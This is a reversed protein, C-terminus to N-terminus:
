RIDIELLNLVTYKNYSQLDKIMLTDLIEAMRRKQGARAKKDVSVILINNIKKNKFDIKKSAVVPAIGFSFKTLNQQKKIKFNLKNKSTVLEIKGDSGTKVFYWVGGILSVKKYIESIFTENIVNQNDYLFFAHESAKIVKNIDKLNADKVQKEYKNFKTLDNMEAATLTKEYKEGTFADTKLWYDADKEYIKKELIWNETIKYCDTLLLNRVSANVRCVALKNFPMNFFTDLGVGVGKGKEIIGQYTFNSLFNTSQKLHFISATSVYIDYAFGPWHISFRGNSYFAMITFKRQGFPLKTYNNANMMVVKTQKSRFYDSVYKSIAADIDGKSRGKM